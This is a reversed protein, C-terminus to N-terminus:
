PVDVGVDHEASTPLELEGGLQDELSLVSVALLLQDELEPCINAHLPFVTHWPIDATCGYRIRDDESRWGSLAETRHTV